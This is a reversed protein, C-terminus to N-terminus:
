SAVIHLALATGVEDEFSADSPVDVGDNGFLKCRIEADLVVSAGDWTSSHVVCDDAEVEVMCVTSLAAHASPYTYYNCTTYSM